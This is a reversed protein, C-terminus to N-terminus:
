SKSVLVSKEKMQILMEELLQHLSMMEPSCRQKHVILGAELEEIQTALAEKLVAVLHKKDPNEQEFQANFFADKYLETGGNVAADIAGKLVMTLEGLPPFPPPREPSHKEILDKLEKNKELITKYACEIPSLETTEQRVIISRRQVTPFTDETFYFTNRVWLDKFENNSKVLTKKFPKSYVFVNVDNQRYYKQLVSPM